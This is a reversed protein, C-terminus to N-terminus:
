KEAASGEETEQSAWDRYCRRERGELLGQRGQGDRQLSRRWRNRWGDWSVPEIGRGDEEDCRM